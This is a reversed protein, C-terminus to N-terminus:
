KMAEKIAKRVMARMRKEQMAAGPRQRPDPAGRQNRASSRGKARREEMPAEEMDGGGALQMLLDKLEDMLAAVREAPDAAEDGVVGEEDGMIVVEAGDHEPGCMEELSRNVSEKRRNKMSAEFDDMESAAAPDWNASRHVKTTTKGGTKPDVEVTTGVPSTSALDHAAASRDSVDPTAAPEPKPAPTSKTAAPKPAPQTDLDDFASSARSKLGAPRQEELEEEEDLTNGATRHQDALDENLKNLDMKFGWAESLLSKLEGNKWDKISMTKDGKQLHEYYITERLSDEWDRFCISAKYAEIEMNRMHPNSQAYGEGMEGTDDFDGRCNQTHHMLEHSLSRLIDKPHRDTIYLTISGAQPDYFGTKGLPDAANSSDGKLFLEPPRDFGMQKQAFPMFQKILPMLVDIDAM